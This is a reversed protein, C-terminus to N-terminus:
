KWFVDAGAPAAAGSFLKDAIHFMIDNAPTQVGGAGYFFFPVQSHRNKDKVGKLTKGGEGKGM